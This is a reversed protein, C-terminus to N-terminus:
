TQSVPDKHFNKRAGKKFGYIDEWAQASNFALENPSVRIVSSKYYDHLKKNDLPLRGRLLSFISPLASVANLKPGPFKALPHFYLRYVVLSIVYVTLVISSITFVYVVSAGISRPPTITDMNSWIHGAATIGCTSQYSRENVVPGQWCRLCCTSRPQVLIM